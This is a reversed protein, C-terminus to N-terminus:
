GRAFRVENGPRLQACRWLDDARVVALVPYGGTTPHDALFVVPTGDPPVQVAGLVMGESALEGDRVRELPPGDLRLGIRNSAPTVTYTTACLRELADTAFWDARPGPDVRLPGPRPPRPADYAAPAGGAPGVPLEAGAVVRPPGVWALTDTARSGLVPDVAIGGSVAVYTRVGTEPPGIRATGDRPVWVAEGHASARGDVSVSCRAGTVAIWVADTARVALGGMTVELVAADQDNGVLRNALEAAPADLAGARPVGLHALGVRGRDQVTVLGDAEEVVLATTM